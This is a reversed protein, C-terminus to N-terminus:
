DMDIRELDDPDNGRVALRIDARRARDVVELLVLVAIRDDIRLIGAELAYPLVGQQDLVDRDSRRALVGDDDARAVLAVDAVEHEVTVDEIMLVLAHHLVDPDRQRISM